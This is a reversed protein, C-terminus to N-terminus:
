LSPSVAHRNAARGAATTPLHARLRRRPVPRRLQDTIRARHYDLESQLYYEAFPFM